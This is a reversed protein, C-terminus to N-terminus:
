YWKRLPVGCRVCLAGTENPVHGERFCKRYRKGSDDVRYCICDPDHNISSCWCYMHDVM